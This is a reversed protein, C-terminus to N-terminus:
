KKAPLSRCFKVARDIWASLDEDTAYGPPRVYIMSKMAKGTFDMEHTDSETLAARTGADGLRLVLNSGILGCCMNGNLLFCLGGFMKRESVGRRRRLVSRVRDATNEDFAM